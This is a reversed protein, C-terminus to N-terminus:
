FWFWFWFGFGFGFGFGFSCPCANLVVTFLFFFFFFVWVVKWELWYICELWHLAHTGKLAERNFEALACFAAYVAIDDISIMSTLTEASEFAIEALKRAVEAYRSNELYSLALAAQHHPVAFPFVFAFLCFLFLCVFLVFVALCVFCFCGFLCFLFLWIFL